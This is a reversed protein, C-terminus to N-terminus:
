GEEKSKKEEELPSRTQVAVLSGSVAAPPAPPGPSGAVSWRLSRAAPRYDLQAGLSQLKVLVLLMLTHMGLGATQTICQQSSLM